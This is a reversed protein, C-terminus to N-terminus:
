EAAIALQKIVSTPPINNTNISNLIDVSPVAESAQLVVIENLFGKMHIKHPCLFLMKIAIVAVKM